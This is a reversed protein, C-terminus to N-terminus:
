LPRKGFKYSLGFGVDITRAEGSGGEKYQQKSSLYGINVSAFWRKSYNYIIAGSINLGLGEGNLIFKDDDSMYAYAVGIGPSFDLRFQRYVPLSLVPSVLLADYSWSMTRNITNVSSYDKIFNVSYFNNIITVKMGLMEMLRYGAAISFNYGARVMGLYDSGPVATIFEDMASSFGITTGIYLRHDFIKGSPITERVFSYKQLNGKYKDFNNYSSKVPFIDKISGALIGCGAGVAGFVLGAVVSIPITMFDMDGEPVTNIIIVGGAFGIASGIIGGARVSKTRRIKLNDIENFNCVQPAQYKNSGSLFVSSDGIEYLIGKQISSNNNLKIWADWEKPKKYIVGQGIASYFNALALITFITRLIM